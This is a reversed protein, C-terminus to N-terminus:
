DNQKYFKLYRLTGDYTVFDKPMKPALVSLSNIAYVWLNWFQSASWTIKSHQIDPNVLQLITKM